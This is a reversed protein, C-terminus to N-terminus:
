CHPMSGLSQCHPMSGLSQCQPMSGLSQCNPMSGLNVIHCPAWARVIHCPAWVRVNHCPAWVSLTAHLGFESLTAHLVFESLTAHLVFEPLRRTSNFYHQQPMGWSFVRPTVLYMCNYVSLHVGCPSVLTKNGRWMPRWVSDESSKEGNTSPPQQTGVCSHLAHCKLTTTM